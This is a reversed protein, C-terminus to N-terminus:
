KPIIEIMKFCSAILEADFFSNNEFNNPNMTPSPTVTEHLSSDM